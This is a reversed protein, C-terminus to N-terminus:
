YILLEICVNYAICIHIVYVCIYVYGGIYRVCVCVCVCM